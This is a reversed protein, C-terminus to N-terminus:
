GDAFFVGLKEMKLSFNVRLNLFTHFLVFRDIINKSMRLKGNQHFPQSSNHQNRNSLFIVQLLTPSVFATEAAYCFEIGCVCASILCM